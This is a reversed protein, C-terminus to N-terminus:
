QASSQKLTLYVPLLYPCDSPGKEWSRSKYAKSDATRQILHLFQSQFFMKRLHMETNTQKNKEKTVKTVEHVTAIRTFIM